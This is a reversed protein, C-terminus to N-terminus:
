CICLLLLLHYYYYLLLLFYRSDCIALGAKAVEHLLPYNDIYELGHIAYATLAKGTSACAGYLISRLVTRSTLLGALFKKGM